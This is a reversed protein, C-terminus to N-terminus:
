RPSYEGDVLVADGSEVLADLNLQAWDEELGFGDEDKSRRVVDALTGGSDLLRLVEARAQPTSGQKRRAAVGAEHRRQQEALGLPTLSYTTADRTILGRDVLRDMAKAFEARDQELEERDMGLHASKDVARTLREDAEVIERLTLSRADAFLGLVLAERLEDPPMM